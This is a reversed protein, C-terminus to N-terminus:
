VEGASWLIQLLAQLELDLKGFDGSECPMSVIVWPRAHTYRVRGVRLQIALKEVIKKEYKGVMRVFLKYLSLHM